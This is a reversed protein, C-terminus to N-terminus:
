ITARSSPLYYRMTSDVLSMETAPTMKEQDPLLGTVFSGSRHRTEIVGMEVLANVANRAARHNCGHMEALRNISELRDGRLIEGRRIRGLVDAIIGKVDANRRM